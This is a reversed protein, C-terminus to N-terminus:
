KVRKNGNINNELRCLDRAYQEESINDWMAECTPYNTWCIETRKAESVQSESFFPKRGGQSKKNISSASFLGADYIV